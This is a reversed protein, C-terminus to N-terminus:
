KDAGQLLAAIQERGKETPRNGEVEWGKLCGRCAGRKRQDGFLPVRCAEIEITKRGTERHEGTRLNLTAHTVVKRREVPCDSPMKRRAM